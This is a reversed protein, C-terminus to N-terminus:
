FGTGSLDNLDKFESPPPVTKLPNRQQKEFAGSILDTIPDHFFIVGEGQRKKFFEIIVDVMGWVMISIIIIATFLLTFTAFLGPDPAETM